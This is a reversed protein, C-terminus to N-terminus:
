PAALTVEGQRQGTPEPLPTEEQGRGLGPVVLHRFADAPMPLATVVIKHGDFFRQGNWVCNEAMRIKIHQDEIAQRQPQRVQQQVSAALFLNELANVVQQRDQRLPGPMGHDNCVLDAHADHRLRRQAPPKAIHGPQGMLADTLRRVFHVQGNQSGDQADFRLQARWLPSWSREAFFRYLWEEPRDRLPRALAAEAPHWSWVAASGPFAPPDPRGA